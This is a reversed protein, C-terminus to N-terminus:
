YTYTPTSVRSGTQSLAQEKMVIKTKPSKMPQEPNEPPIKIKTKSDTTVLNSNDKDRFDSLENRNQQRSM